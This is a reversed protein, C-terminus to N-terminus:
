SVTVPPGPAAARSSARVMSIHGTRSGDPSTVATATAANSLVSCCQARCRSATRFSAAAAM